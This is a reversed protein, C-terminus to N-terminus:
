NKKNRSLFSYAYSNYVRAMGDSWYENFTKYERNPMNLGSLWMNWFALSLSFFAISSGQIFSTWKRWYANIFRGQLFSLPSLAFVSILYSQPLDKVVKNKINWINGDRWFMVAGFTISQTIPFLLNLTVVRRLVNNFRSGPFLREAATNAFYNGTGSFTFGGMFFAFARRPERDSM